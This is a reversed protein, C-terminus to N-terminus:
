SILAAPGSDAGAGRGRRDGLGNERERSSTRPRPTEVVPAPSVSRSWLQPVHAANGHRLRPSRHEPARRVWPTFRARLSVETVCAARPFNMDLRVVHATRALRRAAVSSGAPQRSAALGSRRPGAVASNTAAALPIASSWCFPASPGVLEVIIRLPNLGVFGRRPLAIM